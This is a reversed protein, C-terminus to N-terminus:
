IEKSVYGKGVSVCQLFYSLKRRKWEMRKQLIKEVKKVADHTYRIWSVCLNQMPEQWRRGYRRPLPCMKKLTVPM